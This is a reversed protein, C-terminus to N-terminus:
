LLLSIGIAFPYQELGYQHIPTFSYTGYFNIPGYGIEGRLGVRFKELNFPDKNKVKNREESKQKTRSKILLGFTPGASVHFARSDRHPNTNLHLLVPITLYETFLKNKELDIDSLKIYTEDLANVYTVNKTYRYNNMVVGIGTKLNLVHQVLNVKLLIPWINVNVSKITRLSFLEETAKPSGEGLRVFNNVEPSGYHSKDIYSNVGLDFGFWSIDVNDLAKEEQEDTNFRVTTKEEGTCNDCQIITINGIKVTDANRHNKLTDIITTKRTTVTDKSNVVTITTKKQSRATQFLMVALLALIIKSKM